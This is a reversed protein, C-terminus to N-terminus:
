LLVPPVPGLEEGSLLLLRTLCAVDVSRRGRITSVTPTVGGCALAPAPGKEYESVIGDSGVGPSPGPVQPKCFCRPQHPTM